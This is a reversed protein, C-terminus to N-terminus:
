DAWVEGAQGPRDSRMAGDPVTHTLVTGDKLTVVVAYPGKTVPFYYHSRGGNAINNRVNAGVGNVSVSAILGRYKYPVLLAMQGGTESDLKLLWWNSYPLHVGECDVLYWKEKSASKQYRKGGEVKYLFNGHKTCDVFEGLDNDPQDPNPTPPVEEGNDKFQDYVEFVDEGFAFLRNLSDRQDPTLACATLVFFGFVAILILAIWEFTTSGNKNKM